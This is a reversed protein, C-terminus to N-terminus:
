RNFKYRQVFLVTNSVQRMGEAPELAWSHNGYMLYVDIKRADCEWITQNLTPWIRQANIWNGVHLYFTNFKMQVAFSLLQRRETTIVWADPDWVYLARTKGYTMNFNEPGRLRFSSYFHIAQGQYGANTKLSNDVITLQAQMYSNWKRHFTIFSPLVQMTEVALVVKKATQAAYNVISRSISLIDNGDSRYAMLLVTKTMDQIWSSFLKITGGRNVNILSYGFPIAPIVELKTDKLLYIVNMYFSILSNALYQVTDKSRQSQPNTADLPWDNLAHVEVDFHLGLLKADVVVLWCTILSLIFQLNM